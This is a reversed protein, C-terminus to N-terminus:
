RPFQTEVQRQFPWMRHALTSSQRVRSNSSVRPICPIDVHKQQEARWPKNNREGDRFKALYLLLSYGHMKGFVRRLVRHIQTNNTLREDSHCFSMVIFHIVCIVDCHFFIVKAWLKLPNLKNSSQIMPKLLDDQCWTWSASSLYRTVYLFCLSSLTLFLIAGWLGM